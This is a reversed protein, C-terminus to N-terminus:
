RSVPYASSPYHDAQGFDWGVAGLKAAKDLIAACRGSTSHTWKVWLWASRGPLLFAASTTFEQPGTYTALNM